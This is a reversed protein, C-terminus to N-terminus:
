VPAEVLPYSSDLQADLLTVLPNRIPSLDLECAAAHRKSHSSAVLLFHM